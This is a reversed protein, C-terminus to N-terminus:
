NTLNRASADIHRALNDDIGLRGALAHLFQQEAATDPEIAIRAATYLQIAERQDSINGALEDISAPNSVERAIFEEAEKDLGAQVLNATVRQQEDADLRGDAAAAAIMGRLYTVAAQDSVDSEEFGSGSPAPEAEVPGVDTPAQGQSYNNYAKYALGGILALAGIKAASMAVSRGTQTGLVLAGLGGLAAGAGLKNNAILDQLQQLLENPSKGGTMNEFAQGAGTSEGIRGAGEKAGDTAQKLVDGLQDLLSGGSGSTGGESTRNAGGLQDQLQGFIDGLGGSTGGPAQGGTPADASPAVNRPAFGGFGADDNGSSTSTQSGGRTLNGLLDELPNKGGQGDGSKQGLQGLIDGLGGSQGDKGQGLQNLLDGIGGLGGQGQQNQPSAGRMMNEILSRADFM